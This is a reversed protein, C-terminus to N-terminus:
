TDKAVRLFMGSPTELELLMGLGVLDRLHFSLPLGTKAPNKSELAARRMEKYRTRKIANIISKRGNIVAAIVKGLQGHDRPPYLIELSLMTETSCLKTRFDLLAPARLPTPEHFM